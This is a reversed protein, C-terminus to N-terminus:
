DDTKIEVFVCESVSGIKFLLCVHKANMKIFKTEFHFIYKNPQLKFRRYCQSKAEGKKKENYLKLQPKENKLKVNQKENDVTYVSLLFEKVKNTYLFLNIMFMSEQKIYVKCAYYVKSYHKETNNLKLTKNIQFTSKYM